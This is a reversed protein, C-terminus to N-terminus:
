LPPPADQFGKRPWLGAAFPQRRWPGGLEAPTGLLCVQVPATRRPRTHPKAPSAAIHPGGGSAPDGRHFATIAVTSATCGCRSARRGRARPLPLTASRTPRHRGTGGGQHLGSGPRPPHCRRRRPRPSPPPPRACCRNGGCGGGGGETARTAPPSLQGRLAPHLPHPPSAATAAVGTGTRRMSLLAGSSSSPLPWPPHLPPPAPGGPPWPPPSVRHVTRAPDIAGQLGRGPRPSRTNWVDKASPFTAPVAPPEDVM